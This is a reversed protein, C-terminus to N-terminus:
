ELMLELRWGLELRAGLWEVRSEVRIEGVGVQELCPEMEPSRVLGIQWVSLVFSNLKHWVQERKSM